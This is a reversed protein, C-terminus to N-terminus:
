HLQGRIAGGPFATNHVNVYYDRPNEELDAALEPTLTTCAAATGSTPAALHVVIPGATKRDGVHIHAAIAPEINEATLLYCLETGNVTWTFQGRGDPDGPGPVEKNGHLNISKTDPQAIAPGAAAVLGAGAVVAAVFAVILRRM